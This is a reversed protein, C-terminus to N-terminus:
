RLAPRYVPQGARRIEDLSTKRQVSRLGPRVGYLVLCMTSIMLKRPETYSKRYFGFLESFSVM